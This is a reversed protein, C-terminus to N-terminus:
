NDPTGDAVWKEIKSINCDSLKAGGKPMPSFGSEHRIAGLLRGNTVWSKLNAHGELVVNGQNSAQSHCVLCNTEIIPKISLAYTVTTTDCGTTSPYLEDEVDYYCGTSVAGMLLFLAIVIKGCNSM